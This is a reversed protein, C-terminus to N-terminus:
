KINKNYKSFNEKPIKIIAIIYYPKLDEQEQLKHGVRAKVSKRDPNFNYYDELRLILNGDDDFRTDYIEAGHFSAYLDEDYEGFELKAYELYGKEYIYQINNILFDKFAYSKSIQKSISSDENLILVGCDDKNPNESQIRELIRKENEPSNLAEISNLLAGNKEIYKKNYKDWKLGIRFLNYSEPMTNTWHTHIWGYVTANQKNAISVLVDDAIKHFMWKLVNFATLYLELDTPKSGSLKQFEHTEKFHKINTKVELQHAKEKELKLKVDKIKEVDLPRLFEPNITYEFKEISDLETEIMDINLKTENELVAVDGKLKEFELELDKQEQIKDRRQQIPDSSPHKKRELWCKCNPHPKDPITNADDFTKGDMAQCKECAGLESHWLYYYDNQEVNGYLTKTNEENTM